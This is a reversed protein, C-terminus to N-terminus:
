VRYNKFALDTCPVLQKIIDPNTIKDGNSVVYGLGVEAWHIYVAWDSAYGRVAAWMLQRGADEPNSTMYVGDPGNSVTGHAFVSNAPMRDLEDSTLQGLVSTSTVCKPQIYNM